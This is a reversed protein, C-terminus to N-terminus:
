IREVGFKGKIKRAKDGVKWSPYESKNVAIKRQGKNTKFVISYFENIKNSNDSDRRTNYLKDVVEGEWEDGKAGKLGKVLLWVFFGVPLVFFFLFVVFVVGKM